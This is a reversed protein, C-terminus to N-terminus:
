TCSITNVPSYTGSGGLVTGGSSLSSRLISISGRGSSVLTGAPDRLSSRPLGIPAFVRVRWLWFGSERRESRRYARERQASALFPPVAEGLAARAGSHILRVRTPPM